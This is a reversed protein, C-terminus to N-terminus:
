LRYFAHCVVENLHVDVEPKLKHRAQGYASATPVEFVAGLETLFKTLATQLSVKHGRLMLVVVRAFTLVRERTFDRACRGFRQCTEAAGLV